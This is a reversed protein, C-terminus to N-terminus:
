GHEDKKFLDLFRDEFQRFLGLRDLESKLKLAEKKDARARHFLEEIRALTAASPGEPEAEPEPIAPGEGSEGPGGEGSPQQSKSARELLELLGREVLRAQVEMEALEVEVGSIRAFARLVALSAKPNPIGVAFFPLEGLLCFAGLGREAAAAVLVGNLGSIQGEQLLAVDNHGLPALVTSDSAVGFVRPVASPHIPTAMAAFTVIRKVGRALALDVLEHCFEWGKQAPQAEGIFLLLDPGARGQAPAAFLTSKPPEPRKAVGGEVQITSVDFYERRALAAVPRAGLKSALYSAAALAVSGMGPWAAVLWPDRLPPDSTTM